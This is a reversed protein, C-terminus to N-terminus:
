YSKAVIIAKNVGWTIALASFFISFLISIEVLNINPLEPM